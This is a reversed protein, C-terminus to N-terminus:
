PEIGQGLCLRIRLGMARPHVPGGYFVIENDPQLQGPLGPRHRTAWPTDGGPPSAAPCSLSPAAVSQM